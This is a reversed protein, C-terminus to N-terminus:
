RKGKKSGFKGNELDDSDGAFVVSDFDDKDDIVFVSHNFSNTNNKATNVIQNSKSFVKWGSADNQGLFIGANESMEKVKLGEVSIYIAM